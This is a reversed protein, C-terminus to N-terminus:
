IFYKLSSDSAKKRKAHQGLLGAANSYKDIHYNQILDLYVISIHIILKLMM